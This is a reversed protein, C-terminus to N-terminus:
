HAFPDQRHLRPRLRIQRCLPHRQKADPHDKVYASVKQDINYFLYSSVLEDYHHNPIM